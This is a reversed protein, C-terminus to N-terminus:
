KKVLAKTIVGAAFSVALSTAIILIASDSGSRDAALLGLYSPLHVIVVSLILTLLMGAIRIVFGTIGRLGSLLKAFVWPMMVCIAFLERMLLLNLFALFFFLWGLNVNNTFLGAIVFPGALETIVTIFRWFVTRSGKITERRQQKETRKWKPELPANLKRIRVCVQGTIYKENERFAFTDAPEGNEAFTIRQRREFVKYYVGQETYGIRCIPTKFNSIKCESNEKVYILDELTIGLGTVVIDTNEIDEFNREIEEPSMDEIYTFEKLPNIPVANEIQDEYVAKSIIGRKHYLGYAQYLEKVSNLAAM